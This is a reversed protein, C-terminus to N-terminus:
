DEAIEEWPQLAGLKRAFSDLDVNINLIANHNYDFGPALDHTLVYDKVVDKLTRYNKM